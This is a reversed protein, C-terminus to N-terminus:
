ATYVHHRAATYRRSARVHHAEDNRHLGPPPISLRPRTRSGIGEARAYPRGQRPRLLSADRSLPPRAPSAAILRARGRRKSIRVCAHRCTPGDCWFVRMVFRIRVVFVQYIKARRGFRWHKRGRAALASTDKSFIRMRWVRHPCPGGAVFTIANRSTREALAAAICVRTWRTFQHRANGGRGVQARM